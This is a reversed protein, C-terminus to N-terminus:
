DAFVHQRFTVVTTAASSPLICTHKKRRDHFLTSGGTASDPSPSPKAIARFLLPVRERLPFSRTDLVRYAFTATITITYDLRYNHIKQVLVCACNVFMRDVFAWTSYKYLVPVTTRSLSLSLSFLLAIM